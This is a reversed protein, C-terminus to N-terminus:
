AGTETVRLLFLIILLFVVVVGSSMIKWALPYHLCWWETSTRHIFIFKFLETSCGNAINPKKKGRKVLVRGSLLQWWNQIRCMSSISCTHKKLFTIYHLHESHNLLAMGRLIGITLFGTEAGTKRLHRCKCLDLASSFEFNFSSLTARYFWSRYINWIWVGVM